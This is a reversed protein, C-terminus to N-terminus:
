PALRQWSSGSAEPVTALIAGARDVVILSPVVSGEGPSTVVLAGDPSWLPMGGPLALRAGDAGLVQVCCPVEGEGHWAISGDAAFRPRDETTSTETLAVEGSGDAEVLIIDGDGGASAIQNGDPSWRRDV